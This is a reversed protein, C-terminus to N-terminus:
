ILVGKMNRQRHIFVLSKMPDDFDRNTISSGGSSGKPDLDFYAYPIVTGPNMGERYQVDQLHSDIKSQLSPDGSMYVECIGLAVDLEELKFILVEAWPSEDKAILTAAARLYEAAKSLEETIGCLNPPELEQQEVSKKDNNSVLKEHRITIHWLISLQNHFDSRRQCKGTMPDFPSYPNSPPLLPINSNNIITDASKIYQSATFM